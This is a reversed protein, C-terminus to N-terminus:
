NPICRKIKISGCFYQQRIIYPIANDDTQRHMCNIGTCYSKNKNIESMIRNEPPPSPPVLFPPGSSFVLNEPLSSKLYTKNFVYVTLGACTTVEILCDGTNFTYTYLYWKRLIRDMGSYKFSIFMYKNNIFFLVSNNM